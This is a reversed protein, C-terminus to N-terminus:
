KNLNMSDNALDSKAFGFMNFPILKGLLSWRYVCPHSIYTNELVDAVEYLHIEFVGM